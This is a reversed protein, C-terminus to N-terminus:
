LKKVMCCYGKKLGSQIDRLNMFFRGIRVFSIVAKERTASTAEAWITM